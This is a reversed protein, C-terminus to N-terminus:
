SISNIFNIVHEFLRTKNVNLQHNEDEILILKSQVCTENYRVSYEYPVIKDRMGHILCMPGKYDSVQGYIDLEQAVLIYQKGLPHLMVWLKDPPNKPNFKATMIQGKHVDDYVVAAPALLLLADLKDKLQGACLSAVVGGQSHGIMYIKDIFELNKVFDYVALADEVENLITMDVFKGYSRGHGNFDFSIAAIGTDALLTGLHKIPYMEKSAMFGHMLMAMPVKKTPSVAPLFITIRLNGNKTKLWSNIVQSREKLSLKTSSSIFHRICFM